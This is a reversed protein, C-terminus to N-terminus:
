HIPVWAHICSSQFGANSIGATHAHTPPCTRGSRFLFKLQGCQRKMDTPSIQEFNTMDMLTFSYIPM